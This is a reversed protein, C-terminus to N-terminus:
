LKVLEYTFKVLRKESQDQTSRSLENFHEEIEDNLLDWINNLYGDSNKRVIDEAM